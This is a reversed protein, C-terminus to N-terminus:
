CFPPLVACAPWGTARQRDPDRRLAALSWLSIGVMVAALTMLWINSTMLRDEM